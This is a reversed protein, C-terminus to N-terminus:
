PERWRLKKATASHLTGQGERGRHIGLLPSAGRRQPELSFPDHRCCRVLQRRRAINNAAKRGRALDRHRILCPLHDSGSPPTASQSRWACVRHRLCDGRPRALQAFRKKSPAHPYYEVKRSGCGIGSEPLVLRRANCHQDFQPHIEQGFISEGSLASSRPLRAACTCPVENITRQQAIPSYAGAGSNRDLFPCHAANSRASRDSLGSPTPRPHEL